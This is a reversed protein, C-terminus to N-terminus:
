VEENGSKRKAFWRRLWVIPLFALFWFKKLFLLAAAILGTKAAVKGAILGGIGIAAVQDISPDFDRYRAGEQFATMAAVEPLATKIDELQGIGAVFNLQLVGKRGLARLNYNLTNVDTGDFALEKAWHLKRTTKDYSPPEAWGVLIIKEFGNEVRWTNEANTEKQMTKLLDDYDITDADEDSVFGIDDWSVIAGWADDDVPLYTSPFIMGLSDGNPNGWLDVLVTATDNPSLYYYGDPVDLYAQGGPIFVRGQQYDMAKLAVVVPHDPDEFSTDSFLEEFPKAFGATALVSFLASFLIKKM